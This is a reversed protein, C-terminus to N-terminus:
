RLAKITDSDIFDPSVLLFIIKAYNLHEKIEQEWETGALTATM